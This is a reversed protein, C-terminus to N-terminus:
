LVFFVAFSTIGKGYACRILFQWENTEATTKHLDDSTVSVHEETQATQSSAILITTAIKKEYFVGTLFNDADTMPDGKLVPRGHGLSNGEYPYVDGLQHFKKAKGKENFV